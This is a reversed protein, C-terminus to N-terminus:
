GSKILDELSILNFQEVNFFETGFYFIFYKQKLTIKLLMILEEKLKM